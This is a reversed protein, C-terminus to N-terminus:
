NRSVVVVVLWLSLFLSSPVSVKYNVFCFIIQKYQKIEVNAKKIELYINDCTFPASLNALETQHQTILTRIHELVLIIDLMQMHDEELLSTVSAVDVSDLHASVLCWFSCSVSPLHYSHDTFGNLFWALVMNGGQLHIYSGCPESSDKHQNRWRNSDVVYAELDQRWRAGASHSLM